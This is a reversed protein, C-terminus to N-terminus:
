IDNKIAEEVLKIIEKLDELSIIEIENLTFYKKNNLEIEFSGLYETDRFIDFIKRERMEIEDYSNAIKLKIM